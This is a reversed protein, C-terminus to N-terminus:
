ILKVESSLQLPNNLYPWQFHSAVKVTSLVMGHSSTTKHQMFFNSILQTGASLVGKKRVPPCMVLHEMSMRWSNLIERWSTGSNWVTGQEIKKWWIKKAVAIFCTVLIYVYKYTCINIFMHPCIPSNKEQIIVCLHAFTVRRSEVCHINDETIATLLRM